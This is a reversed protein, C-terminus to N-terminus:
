IQRSLIYEAVAYLHEKEPGDAFVKLGDKAERIFQGARNLSYDIGGSKQILSFIDRITDQSFAKKEITAQIMGREAETCRALTYILPLTMKGEELDKGISKGFDEERAMYDLTDDTIQFAMGIKYGYQELSEIKERAAGGLVAGSGCAASILVATKKEVIGLYEAETLSTDGCKMLQFVEGESMINTMKSMLQVIAIDGVESLLKFAKSYLFDGVLVSAANGWLNNASTKGRRIFAEDIVDDHLLSATHIFEIAAALPFRHEGSYGCLRSSILHLLPRFRKGGSDILHHAVEPIMKVDSTIYRDLHVEIQRMEDAYAAFVDSIQM